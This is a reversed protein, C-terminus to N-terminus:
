RRQTKIKIFLALREPDSEFQMWAAKFRQMAEDRDIAEGMTPFPTAGVVTDIGWSWFERQHSAIQIGISGLELDSGDTLRMVVRYANDAHNHGIVKRLRLETM